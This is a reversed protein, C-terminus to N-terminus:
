ISETTKCAKSSYREKTIDSISCINCHHEYRKDKVFQLRRSIKNDMEKKKLSM